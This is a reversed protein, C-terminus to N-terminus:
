NFARPSQYVQCPDRQLNFALFTHPLILCYPYRQIQHHGRTSENTQPQDGLLGQWCAPVSTMVQRHPGVGQLAEVELAELTPAM